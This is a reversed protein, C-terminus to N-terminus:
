FMAVSCDSVLLEDYATPPLADQYVTGDQMNLSQVVEITHPSSRTYCLCLAAIEINYCRLQSLSAPYSDSSSQIDLLCEAQKRVYAQM